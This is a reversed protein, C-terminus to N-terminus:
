KKPIGEGIEVITTTPKPVQKQLVKEKQDKPDNILVNLAGFYTLINDATNSPIRYKEVIAAVDNKQPDTKFDAVLQMVQKLTLKGQPVLVPETYGLETEEVTGRFQPLRDKESPKGFKPNKIPPPDHSRVYVDKLFGDLQMDKKVLSEKTENDNSLEQLYKETSPHRPAAEPKSKALVREARNEANFRGAARHIRSTVMGM